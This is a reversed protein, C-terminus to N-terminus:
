RSVTGAFRRARDPPLPINGEPGPREGEVGGRETNKCARQADAHEAAMAAWGAETFRPVPGICTMESARLLADGGGMSAVARPATRCFADMSRQIYWLAGLAGRPSLGKM